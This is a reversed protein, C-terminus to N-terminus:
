CLWAGRQDTIPVVNLGSQSYDDACIGMQLMGSTTIARSTISNLRVLSPRLQHIADKLQRDIVRTEGQSYISEDLNAHSMAHM